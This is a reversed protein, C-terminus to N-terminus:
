SVVLWTLTSNSLVEYIADLNSELVESSCIEQKVPIHSFIPIMGVILVMRCVADM